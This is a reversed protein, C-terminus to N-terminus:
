RYWDSQKVYEKFNTIKQEHHEYVVKKATTHATQEYSTIYDDLANAKLLSHALAAKSSM